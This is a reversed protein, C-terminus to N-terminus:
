RHTGVPNWETVQRIGARAAFGNLYSAPLSAQIEMVLKRAQAAEVEATKPDGRAAMVRSRWYHVHAQVEKGVTREGELPVENLTAMAEAHQQRSFYARAQQLRCLAESFLRGMKRAQEISAAITAPAAVDQPDLAARHCRAEVSAAHPLDDTWYAAAKAFHGRAERINGSESELEGLATQAPPALWLQGSAEIATLTRVLRERAGDLDGLRAYIRGLAIPIALEGRGAPTSAVEELLSRAAEYEATMFYSEALRLSVFVVRNGRQREKALTLAARLERRAEEHRGAHLASAGEMEITIVQFDVNGLKQFTARANLLRRLAASPDTGYDILLTAANAEQEAARPADGNREYFDRAEQYYALVRSRQGLLEFTVGLNMLANGEILRNGITRGRSLAQEFFNAAASYNREDFAVLGFYQYVRSLGYEYGLSEFIAQASEINRRADALRSEGGQARQADGLCLLAQAEGGRHGVEQFSRLAARAENEALPYENQRVYLQCLDVHVRSYQADLRLAERYATTAAQDPSQRKLFDALEVQISADDSGQRVLERYRQEAAGVDGQSEALVANIFRVEPEPTETLVLQSARKASNAAQSKDGLIYLVRSLWAHTMAHPEDLGAARHFADRATSYELQEYASLGDSFARAADVTRFRASAPRSGYSRGPGNAKFHTQIREVLMTMQRLATDKPLSSAVPETEYNNTVTGTDVSRLQAQALWAGNRYELSPVIVFSAGSQTAIAQIADSSSIDGASVFRRVIQLLRLYRVVRINPSEALEDILTATLAMRYADLDPEGTHNAVPAIAVSIRVVPRMLWAYTGATVAAVILIAAIVRAPTVAHRLRAIRPSPAIAERAALLPLPETRLDLPVTRGQLLRLDRALERASQYRREPDKELVRLVLAEVAPPIARDGAGLPIVLPPVPENKIAHFIAEPYAGGFPVRGTLMEYLVVGLAWVDSRTDAEEGRAQEPSMYAVTGITSGPMTLQLADAFKALGFDLVKVGDDTIMLNGPKVDRHVVGQAHAKALGEAAETVIELAEAFPLAGDELKQKLTQGEYYAMVIFLRGDDTHEIDHIICINRHNTASAAQAERLFRQKAGEDHSWQPPLFKLAVARGLKTDIAKYVVGMGGGGIRAVVDYQSITSGILPDATTNSV